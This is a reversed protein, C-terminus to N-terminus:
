LAGFILVYALIGVFSALAVTRAASEDGQSWFVLAGVLGAVPLLFGGVTGAILYNRRKTEDPSM